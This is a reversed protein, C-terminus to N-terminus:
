QVLTGKYLTPREGTGLQCIVEVTYTGDCYKKLSASHVVASLDAERVAGQTAREVKTVVEEGKADRIVAYLDSIAYNTKVPTNRLTEIDITDGEYGFTCITKECPDTGLFEAFTFPMYYSKFLSDFTIKKDVNSKMWYTDGEKGTYEAWAQGQDTIYMYSQEGDIVGGNRVVVPAGTCMIVHGATTYQVFGDAPKMQAYSEYMTQEGNNLCIDVTGGVDRLDNITEDYTYPGVRLFGNAVTMNQTWTHNASNIVRAWGWHSAISCQNGFYKPFKTAEAM